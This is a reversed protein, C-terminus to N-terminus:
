VAKSEGQLWYACTPLPIFAREYSPSPKGKSKAKKPTPNRPKNSQWEQESLADENVNTAVTDVNFKLQQLNISMETVPSDIDEVENPVPVGKRQLRAIIQAATDHM